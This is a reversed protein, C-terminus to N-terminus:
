TRGFVDDEMLPKYIDDEDYLYDKRDCEKQFPCKLCKGIWGRELPCLNMSKLSSLMNGYRNIFFLSNEASEWSLYKKAKGARGFGEAAPDPKVAPEKM